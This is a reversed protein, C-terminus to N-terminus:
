ARAGRRRDEPLVRGAVSYMSGVEVVVDADVSPQEALM